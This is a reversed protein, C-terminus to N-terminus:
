AALEYLGNNQEVLLIYSEQKMTKAFNRLTNIDNIKETMCIGKYDNFCVSYCGDKHKLIASLRYCPGYKIYGHQVMNVVLELVEKEDFQVAKAGDSTRASKIGYTVKELGLLKITRKVDALRM